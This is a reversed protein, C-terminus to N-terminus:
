VNDVIPVFLPLPLWSATCPPLDRRQTSMAGFLATMAQRQNWAYQCDGQHESVSAAGDKVEICLKERRAFGDIDVTICGDALRDYTAKLKLCAGVVRKYNLVSYCDTRVVEGREAIDLLADALQTKHLPVLIDLKEKGVAEFCAHLVGKIHPQAACDIESVSDGDVVFYGAFEGAASHVAYAKNEWTVLTEYLKEDQRVAHSPDARILAAISRLENEHQATLLRATYGTNNDASGYGHRLNDGILEFRYCVGAPEYGFYSYRQRLGGLSSFDAGDQVMADLAMGMAQKMYGKRRHFPHVAVNGIGMGRLRQGCVDMDIPYSGVAARLKGNETIIYNFDEPRYKPSYLKPLLQYFGKDGGNMAFIYNLFDILDEHDCHGTGIGKYVDM